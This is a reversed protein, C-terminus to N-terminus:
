WQVIQFMALFVLVFRLRTSRGREEGGRGLPVFPALQIFPPRSEAHFLSRFWARKRFCALGGGCDNRFASACLISKGKVFETSETGRHKLFAGVIGRGWRDM